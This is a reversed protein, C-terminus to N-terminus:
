LNHPGTPQRFIDDLSGVFSNTGNPLSLDQGLMSQIEQARGLQPDSPMLGLPSPLDKLLDTFSQLDKIGNGHDTSLRDPVHLSTPPSQSLRSTSTAASDQNRGQLQMSLDFQNREQPIPQFSSSSTRHPDESAPLSSSNESGRSAANAAAAAPSLHTHTGEYTTIVIGYDDSAREVRKRVPCKQNTCRYYSRCLADLSTNSAADFRRGSNM